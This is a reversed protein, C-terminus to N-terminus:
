NVQIVVSSNGPIYKGAFIEGSRAVRRYIYLGARVLVGLTYIGLRWVNRFSFSM